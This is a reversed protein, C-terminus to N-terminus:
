RWGVVQTSVTNLAGTTTATGGSVTWGAAGGTVTATGPGRVLISMTPDPIMPQPVTTLTYRLGSDSSFTGPPLTYKLTVMTTGGAATWRGVRVVTRGASDPYVTSDDKDGPDTSPSTYSVLSAGPPLYALYWNFSWDTFYGVRDTSKRGNAPVAYTVKMTTAVSASGDAAITVVHGVDRKQFIDVKSGNQNQSFVALFDGTPTPFGGDLGSSVVTAQLAKDDVHVRFHRGPATSALAKLLSLAGSGGTLRAFVTNMLQENLQHRKEQDAGFDSYADVLLKQVLNQSNIEGYVDSTVPGTVSLAASLAVPDLTIVGDVPKEGNAVWSRQMELATLHFDPHLDSYAFAAAGDNEYYPPGAVHKWTVKPNGPFLKTSVTGRIPVTLKGDTFKVLAASLAAGGGPYLEAPNLTVLLYSKSGGKGLAAPIRALVGQMTTLTDKLPAIQGLAKDRANAMASTGPLTGEVSNLRTTADDIEALASSVAGATEDLVTFDVKGGSFLSPGTTAKGTAAGYVLVIRSSATSLDTAAGILNDLDDVAQGVVPLGGVIRVQRADAAAAAFSVHGQANKASAAAAAYDGAELQAKVAEISTQAASAESQIVGASSKLGLGVWAGGIVLVLVALLLSGLVIRRRRYVSSPLRTPTTTSADDSDV